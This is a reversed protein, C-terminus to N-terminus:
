QHSDFRKSGHQGGGSAIHMSSGEEKKTPLTKSKRPICKARVVEGEQEVMELRSGSCPVFAVSLVVNNMFGNTVTMIM